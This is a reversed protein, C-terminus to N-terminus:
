KAYDADFDFEKPLAIGQRKMKALIGAQFAWREEEIRNYELNKEMAQIDVDSWEAVQDFTFIGRDQLRELMKPGVGRIISLDDGGSPAAEEVFADAVVTEAVAVPAVDEVVPAAEAVPAAKPAKPADAKPADSAAGSGAGGRRSRRTKAKAKTSAGDPKVDNYDVLEIIAMESADGKRTGLRVIRTYGGPRDVIKTAIDGFLEKVGEKSQLNSFAVRRNHMTDEKARNIIPEVFMRLAKAKILTTTIRKNKLLANSLATLTAKRHSATRSLKYGKIQKKM